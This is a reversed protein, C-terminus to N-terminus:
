VLYKNLKEYQQDLYSNKSPANTAYEQPKKLSIPNLNPNNYIIERKYGRDLDNNIDIDFIIKYYPKDPKDPIIMIYVFMIVCTIFLVTFYKNM